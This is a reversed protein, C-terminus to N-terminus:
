ERREASIRPYDAQPLAFDKMAKQKAPIEGTAEVIGLFFTKGGRHAFSVGRRFKSSKRASM